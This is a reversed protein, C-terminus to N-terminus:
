EAERRLLMARWEGDEDVRVLRLGHSGASEVVTHLEEALVGSLIVWGGPRVAHSLGPMLGLLIGSEINALVGDHPALQKLWEASAWREEVRVAEGAANREANELAAERALPDGDIAFVERAGLRAAAISLIGSGCGVDLVREGPAVVDDLLRLCGRTTGHEANGFAMGPDLTIVVEGPAAEVTEWSPTVVLRQTVRRVGLGRKWTEAWEEHPQWSIQLEGIEARAGVLFADLDDPEPVHTVLRGADEWVARGGLALLGETLLSQAEEDSPSEVALVLWRRM